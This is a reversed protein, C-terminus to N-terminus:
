GPKAEAAVPAAPPLVQDLLTEIAKAERIEHAVQNIRGSSRLQKAIEDPSRGTQSAALRIQDALDDQTVEIKLKEALADLLIFRRLGKESDAVAAQRAQEVEEAKKGQSEAQRAANDATEKASAEKLKPPLEFQVKALLQETLDSAQKQRRQNERTMQMRMRMMSKLQDLSDVGLRKALEDNAEAARLRSAAQITVKIEGEKGAFEAPTFSQPLTATFALEAGVGRDKLLAVIDAPAKGFFPYGGVLHNFDHLKRVEAGGVLVAGSVTISDDEIITEGAQLPGMTGARRCMGKIQEDLDADTVAVEASEVKLDKAEPLTVAPHVEFSLTVTLGNDRTISDTAIGGIPRLNHEKLAKSLAEDGLQQETHATADAGFRKEVVATAAKGPRFGPLKVEGALRKLVVSRRSAVEERTYAITVTKRLTGSDTVTVQM